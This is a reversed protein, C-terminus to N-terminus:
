FLTLFLKAFTCIISKPRKNLQVNIIAYPPLNVKSNGEIKERKKEIVQYM